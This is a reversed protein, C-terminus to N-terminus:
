DEREDLDREYCERQARRVAVSGEGTYIDTNNLPLGSARTHFECTVQPLDNATRIMKGNHFLPDGITMCGILFSPLLLSLIIHRIIGRSEFSYNDLLRFRPLGIWYHKRKVINTKGLASKSFARLPSALEEPGIEIM